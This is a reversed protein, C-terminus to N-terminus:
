SECLFPCGPQGAARAACFPAKIGAIEIVLIALTLRGGAIDPPRVECCIVRFCTEQSVSSLGSTIVSMCNNIVAILAVSFSM